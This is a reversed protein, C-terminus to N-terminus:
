LVSRSLRPTRISGYCYTACIAVYFLISIFLSFYFTAQPKYYLIYEASKGEQLILWTNFGGVEMDQINSLSHLDWPLYKDLFNFDEARYILWRNDYTQNFELLLDQPNPVSIIYEVPSLKAYSGIADSKNAPDIFELNMDKNEILFQQIKGYKKSPFNSALWAVLQNYEAYKPMNSDLYYSGDWIRWNQNDDYVVSNVGLKRLSEQFGDYDKELINKNLEALQNDYVPNGTNINLVSGRIFDALAVDNDKRLWSSFGIGYHQLPLTLLRDSSSNDGSASLFEYYDSPIQVYYSPLGSKGRFVPASIIFPYIYAAVCVLLLIYFCKKNISKSFIALVIAFLSAFLLHIPIAFKSFSNRLGALLHIHSISEAKWFLFINSVIFILLLLVAYLFLYLSSLKNRFFLPLSIFSFLMLCLSIFPATTYYEAEPNVPTSNDLYPSYLNKYSTESITRLLDSYRSNNIYDQVQDVAITQAALYSNASFIYPIILWSWSLTLIFFFSATRLFNQKINEFLFPTCFLCLSVYIIFIFIHSLALGYLISLPLLFLYYKGENKYIIKYSVIMLIPFLAQLWEFGTQDQWVYYYQFPGFTYILAAVVNIGEHGRNLITLFFYTGLLSSCLLFITTLVYLIGGNMVWYEILSYTFTDQPTVYRGLSNHGDWSYLNNFQIDPLYNLTYFSDTGNVISVGASWFFAVVIALIFFALPILYKRSNSLM